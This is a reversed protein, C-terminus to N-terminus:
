HLEIMHTDNKMIRFDQILYICGEHLKSIFCHSINNKTTYHMVNRKEDSVIFDINLYRRQINSVDWKLCLMVKAPADVNVRM